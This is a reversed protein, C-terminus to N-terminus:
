PKDGKVIDELQQLIDTQRDDWFMACDMKKGDDYYVLPPQTFYPQRYENPVATYRKCKHKILCGDGSCMTLDAM